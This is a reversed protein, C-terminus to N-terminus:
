LRPCPRPRPTLHGPMSQRALCLDFMPLNQKQEQEFAQQDVLRAYRAL